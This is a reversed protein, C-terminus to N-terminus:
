EAHEGKKIEHRKKEFKRGGMRPRTKNGKNKEELCHDAGESSGKAYLRARKSEKLFIENTQGGKGKGGGKRGKGGESSLNNRRGSIKGV